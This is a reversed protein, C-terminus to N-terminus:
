GEFSAFLLYLVLVGVPLVLVSLGAVLLASEIAGLEAGGITLGIGRPLAPAAVALGVFVGLAFGVASGFTDHRTPTTGM